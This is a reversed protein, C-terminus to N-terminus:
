TKEPPATGVLLIDEAGTFFLLTMLRSSPLLETMKSFGAEPNEGERIM